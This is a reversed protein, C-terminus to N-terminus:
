PQKPELRKLKDVADSIAKTQRELKLIRSDMVRWSSELEEVQQRMLFENHIAVGSRRM